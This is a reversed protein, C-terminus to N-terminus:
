APGDAAPQDASPPSQPQEINARRRRGGCGVKIDEQNVGHAVLWQTLWEGSTRSLRADGRLGDWRIADGHQVCTGAIKQKAKYWEIRPYGDCACPVGVLEVKLGAILEEIESPKTIEFLVPAEHDGFGGDRVVIRDAGAIASHLEGQYPWKPLPKSGCGIIAFVLVMVAIYRSITM